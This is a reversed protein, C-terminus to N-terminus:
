SAVGTRATVQGAGWDVDLASADQGAFGLARRNPEHGDGGILSPVPAHDVLSPVTCYTRWGISRYYRGVRTDYEPIDRGDAWAVMAPISWTPAAVALGWCLHTMALWAAGAKRCAALNAPLTTEFQRRPPRRSGCFASVIAREPIHAVASELGAILDACVLADDQLVLHWDARLDAALWARRGTDWRDNRRDWVIRPYRDLACVLQPVLHARRHHAMVAVSM